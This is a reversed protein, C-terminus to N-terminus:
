GWHGAKRPKTGLRFHFSVYKDAEYSSFLMFIRDLFDTIYVKLLCYLKLSKMELRFGNFKEGFMNKVKIKNEYNDNCVIYSYLNKSM